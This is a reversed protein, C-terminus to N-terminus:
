KVTISKSVTVWGTEGERRLAAFMYTGPPTEGNVDFKAEGLADLKVTFPEKVVGDFAYLITVIQNALEPVRMAYTEGARVLGRSLEFRYLVNPLHSTLVDPRQRVISTFDELHRNTWRLVLMNERAYRELPLHFNDGTYTVAMSPDSYAMQFLRGDAQDWAVVPEEENLIVILTNKPITPYLRQLDRISNEANMASRGLVRHKMALQNAASAQIAAPLALVLGCLGVALAPKARSSQAFAWDLVVGMALSFGVLPAFLYYPLFQNLLLVTPLLATVFWGLGLLMLNRQGTFLVFVAGVCILARVWKLAAQMWREPIMDETYTGRPIGFAWGFAIDFNEPIQKGL